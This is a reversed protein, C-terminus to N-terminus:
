GLETNGKIQFTALRLEVNGEDNISKFYITEKFYVYRCLTLPEFFMKQETPADAWKILIDYHQRM